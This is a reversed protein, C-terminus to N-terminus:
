CRPSAGAWSRARWAPSSPPAPDRDGGRRLLAPPVDALTAYHPAGGYLDAPRPQPDVTGALTVGGLKAIAADQSLVWLARARQKGDLGHGIVLIRM